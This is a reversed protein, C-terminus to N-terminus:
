AICRCQGAALINLAATLDANNKYKCKRCVFSSQTKRNDKSIDGCQPCTQSTYKPDILLLKGGSFNQKYELQRAFEFWGQDLIAQNLSSKSRVKVGPTELSGKASATMKSTKLDELVIIAHNKSIKNSHKHLYDKRADTIKIHKKALKKKQKIWNKSGKVKRVLSRQHFRLAKAHKKFSNLPALFEGNSLAAFHKVGRDIGVSSSLERAPIGKELETQISVFWHSGRRSITVNKLKGKIEQSKHFTVWGIKPLFIRRNEVKFGQPFRFSEKLGKRKFVPLRKNKQKKDFCDKFAKDLNKLTQQLVQSHCDKLFSLEETKKWFTLWFALEYYYLIRHKNNLRELNLALAKNWILRSCGSFQSLKSEIEADTKLRYKYAKRILM